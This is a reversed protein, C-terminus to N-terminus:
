QVRQGEDFIASSIFLCIVVLSYLHLYNLQILGGPVLIFLLLFSLFKDNKAVEKINSYSWWWFAIASFVGCRFWVELLENHLSAGLGTMQTDVRPFIINGSKIEKFFEYIITMRVNLSYDLKIVGYFMIAATVVIVWGALFMCLFTSYKINLIKAFYLFPISYFIVTWMRSTSYIIYLLIVLVLSISHLPYKPYMKLALLAGMIYIIQFYDFYDYILIQKNIFAPNSFPNQYLGIFMSWTQHDLLM